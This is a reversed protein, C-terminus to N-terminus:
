PSVLEFKYPDGTGLEPIFIEWFGSSRARMPHVRGDWGNFDGVVSVRRANPAWVAFHVGRRIGHVIPRAGLADFARVQTGEALLYLDFASLVPGYRYPDDLEFTRGYEDTVALRYDFGERAVGPLQVEFVGEPHLRSMPALEAGGPATVAMARARPWFARIALSDGIEHPGLVGFPDAHRGAVLADIDHTLM